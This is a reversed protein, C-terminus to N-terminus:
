PAIKPTEKECAQSRIHGQQEDDNGALQVREDATNM